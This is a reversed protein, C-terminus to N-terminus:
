QEQRLDQLQSWGVCVIQALDNHWADPYEPPVYMDALLLM